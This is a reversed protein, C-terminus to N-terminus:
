LTDSNYPKTNGLLIRQSQIIIRLFNYFGLIDPKSSFQSDLFDNTYTNYISIYNCVLTYTHIYTHIYVLVSPYLCVSLSNIATINPPSFQWIIAFHRATKTPTPASIGALSEQKVLQREHCRSLSFRVLSKNDCIARQSRPYKWNTIVLSLLM